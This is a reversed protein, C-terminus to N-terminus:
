SAPGSGLHTTPVPVVAHGRQRDKAVDEILGARVVGPLTTVRAANVCDHEDGVGMDGGVM